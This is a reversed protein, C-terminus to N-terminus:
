QGGKLKQGDFTLFIMLKGLLSFGGECVETKLSNLRGKKTLRKMRKKFHRLYDIAAKGWIEVVVEDTINDKSDLPSRKGLVRENMGWNIEPAEHHLAPLRDQDKEFEMGWPNWKLDDSKDPASGGEIQINLPSKYIASLNVHITYEYMQSANEKSQCERKDPMREQRANERTQCERKGPMREQRANESTQCERKDPMRVQSANERAQCERKDPMREQRANERAQCERKDPMRVQRANESTQCERKDPMREPRANERTQCERKDPM